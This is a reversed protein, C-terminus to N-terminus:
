QASNIKRLRYFTMATNSTHLFSARESEVTVVGVNQWTKFDSSVLVEYRGPPATVNLRVQEDLKEVGLRIEAKDYVVASTSLSAATLTVTAQSSTASGAPNSVVVRYPGAYAADLSLITLKPKNEGPLPTDGFYWQYSLADGKAKASLVVKQGAPREIDRPQKTIVVPKFLQLRVTRSTTSGFSNTIVVRFTGPSTKTLLPITYAADTAGPVAVFPLPPAPKRSSKKAAPQKEWQYFFPEEGSVQVSFTANGGLAGNVDLPEVVIVPRSSELFLEIDREAIVVGRYLIALRYIGLSDVQLNSLLLFANTAGGILSAGNTGRMWQYSLDAPGGTVNVSLFLNTGPIVPIRDFPSVVNPAPDFRWNLAMLGVAGGVTDIAVPYSDNARVRFRITAFGNTADPAAQAILKLACLSTGTYAAVVTPVSSTATTITLLGDADFRFLQWRSAGGVIGGHNPECAQSTAGFSSSVISGAAVSVVNKPKKSKTLVNIAISNSSFLDEFKDVTPTVTTPGMDLVAPASVVTQDGQTIQVTYVGIDVLSINSITLESNTAGLIPAGNFFWQYSSANAVAASFTVTGGPPSIRNVPQTVIVPVASTAAVDVSWSLVIEGVAGGLGDIAIAYSTGAVANFRIFSTFFGGTDEDSAVTTLSAVNLGTYVGLLTDFTSGRTQFTAIGSAPATWGFWVSHGGVKNAHLPEGPELTAGLNSGRGVGSLANNIPRGAFNDAFFLNSAQVFLRAPESTVAPGFDNQVVVSYRGSNTPHANPIFLTPNTEGPLKTGNYRWQYSIPPTGTAIVSFTATAGPIVNQDLPPIVITAPQTPAGSTLAVLVASGSYNAEAQYNGPVATVSAFTGIVPAGNVAVFQDNPLPTYGNALRVELLGAAVATGQVDLRDTQNVAAGALEIELIGTMDQTYNGSITLTGVPSGPAVRAASLVDASIVGSGTLRGGALNLTSTSAIVSEVRLIGAFQAFSDVQLTGVLVEVLGSNLFPLSLAAPGPNNKRFVGANYFVSNSGLIGAGATLDLEWVGRNTITTNVSSLIVGHQRVTGQNFLQANLHHPVPSGDTLELLGGPAVTLAGDITGAGWVFRGTVINTTFLQATGELFFNTISGGQFNPSLYVVGGVLRLNPLLDDELLLTGGNLLFSGGGTFMPVTTYSFVGESLTLTGGLAASYSGNMLGGDSFSLDANTGVLWNGGLTPTEMLFVGALVEVNGTNALPLDFISFIATGNNVQRLTGSNAFTVADFPSLTRLLNYAGEFLWLNANTILTLGSCNLEGQFHVTGQNFLRGDLLTYSSNTMDLSGASAISLSGNVVGGRWSFRGSVSNTGSWTGAGNSDSLIAVGNANIFSLDANFLRGTNNFTQKGISAGLTFAAVQADVDLVITYTGPVTIQVDNTATPVQNPNWNAPDSWNGGAFNTWTISNNGLAPEAVLEGAFAISYASPANLLFTEGPLLQMQSPSFSEDYWGLGAVYVSSEYSQTAPIFKYVVTDAPAAPFLATISDDATLLLPRTVSNSGAPVNQKVFGLRNVSYAAANTSSRAASVRYSRNSAQSATSDIINALTGVAVIQDVAAWNTGVLSNRFELTYLLGPRTLFGLTAESANVAISALRLVSNANQPHTDARYEELNTMGDADPDLAADNPNNPNLSFALEWEDPIGDGDTDEGVAFLKSTGSILTFAMTLVAVASTTSPIM